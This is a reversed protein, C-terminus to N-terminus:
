GNKSRHSQGQGRSKRISYFSRNIREQEPPDVHRAGPSYRINTIPSPSCGHALV